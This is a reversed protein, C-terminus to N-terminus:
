LQSAVARSLSATGHDKLDILTTVLPVDPRVGVSQIAFPRTRSPAFQEQAVTDVLAKENTAGSVLKSTSDFVTFNGSARVRFRKSPLEFGQSGFEFGGGAGVTPEGILKAGAAWLWAAFFEGGSRTAADTLVFLPRRTKVVGCSPDRAEEELRVSGLTNGVFVDFTAPSPTPAIADAELRAIRDFGGLNGRVDIVMVDVHAAIAEYRAIFAQTVACFGALMAQDESTGPTKAALDAAATFVPDYQPAFAGLRLTGIRQGAVVSEIVDPLDSRNIAATMRQAREGNMPLFPLSVTHPKGEAPKVRLSVSDGLGAVQHVIHTAIGLETAAEAMRGRRHGGFTVLAAKELWKATPVGDIALVEDGERVASNEFVRWVIMSGDRATRFLVGPTETKGAGPGALAVHQDQLSALARVLELASEVKPAPASAAWFPSGVLEDTFTARYREVYSLSPYTTRISAQLAAGDSVLPAAALVLYLSSLGVM